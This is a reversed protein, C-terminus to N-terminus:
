PVAGATGAASGTDAAAPSDAPVAAGPSILATNSSCVCAPQFKQWTDTSSKCGFVGVVVRWFVWACLFWMLLDTLSSKKELTNGSVNKYNNCGM